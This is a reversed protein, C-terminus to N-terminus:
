GRHIAVCVEGGGWLFFSLCPEHTKVVHHRSISLLDHATIDDKKKNCKYVSLSVVVKCRVLHEWGPLIKFFGTQVLALLSSVM